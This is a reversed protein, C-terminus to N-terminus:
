RTLWYTIGNFDAIGIHLSTSEGGQLSLDNDRLHRVAIRLKGGGAYVAAESGWVTGNGGWERMVTVPLLEMANFLMSNWIVSVGLSGGGFFRGDGHLEGHRMHLPTLVTTLAVHHGFLGPQWGITKGAEVGGGDPQGIGLDFSLHNPLLHYLRNWGTVPPVSSRDTIGRYYRGVMYPYFLQGLELLFAVSPQGTDKRHREVSALQHLAQEITVNLFVAPNEILSVMSREARCSGVSATALAVNRACGPHQSWRRFVDVAEEDRKLGALVEDFRTRCSLAEAFGLAECNKRTNPATLARNANVLAQMVLADDRHTLPVAVEAIGEAPYEHEFIRTMVVPAIVGVDVYDGRILKGLEDLASDPDSGTLIRNAIFHFADYMGVYFDYERLPRGLFAAFAGLHEGVIPYARTTTEIWEAKGYTPDRELTRALSQLEYQRAAPLAGALMEQLAAFGYSEPPLEFAKRVDSLPSRLQGPNIYILMPDPKGHLPGGERKLGNHLGFALDLPNNDFFGGDAFLDTHPPRCESSGTLDVTDCYSLKMPGFAVPFASSALSLRFVSQESIRGRTTSSLYVIQGLGAVRRIDTHPQEFVIKSPVGGQEATRGSVIAAYRQTTAELMSTGIRTSGPRSKTLTIGIPIAQRCHNGPAAGLRSRVLDFHYDEFFKRHFVADTQESMGTYHPMLQEIGTNVWVNWFLSAEPAQRGAARCWEILSLITNINGASAGTMAALRYRKGTPAESELTSRFFEVLAWNVGAQYAGLSIGGSVSMLVPVPEAAPHSIDATASRASGASQLAQANTVMSLLTVVIVSTRYTIGPIM